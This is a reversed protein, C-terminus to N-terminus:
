NKGTETGIRAEPIESLPIPQLVMMMPPLGFANADPKMDHRKAFETGPPDGLM